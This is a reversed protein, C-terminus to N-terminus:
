KNKRQNMQDEIISLAGSICIYFNTSFNVIIPYRPLLTGDWETSKYLVVAGYSTLLIRKFFYIVVSFDSFDQTIIQELTLGIFGWSLERVLIVLNSSTVNMRM